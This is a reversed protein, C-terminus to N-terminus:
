VHCRAASAHPAMHRDRRPQVVGTPRRPAPGPRQVIGAGADAREIQLGAACIPTPSLLTSRRSAQWYPSAAESDNSLAGSAPVVTWIRM